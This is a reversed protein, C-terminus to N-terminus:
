YPVQGPLRHHRAPLEAIAPVELGEGLLAQAQVLLESPIATSSVPFIPLQIQPM